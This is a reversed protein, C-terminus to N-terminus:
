IKSVTLCKTVNCIGHIYFLINKEETVLEESSVSYLLMGSVNNNTKETSNDKSSKCGINYFLLLLILRDINLLFINPELVHYCVFRM